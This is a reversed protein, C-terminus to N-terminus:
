STSRMAAMPGWRTRGCSVPRPICPSDWRIATGLTYVEPKHGARGAFPNDAPATGDDNLRLIKGSYSNPDQSSNGNGGSPTTM